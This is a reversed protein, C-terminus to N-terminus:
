YPKVLRGLKLQAYHTFSTESWGQHILHISSDATTINAYKSASKQQFKDYRNNKKM